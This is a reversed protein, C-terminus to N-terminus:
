DSGNTECDAWELDPSGSEFVFPEQWVTGPEELTATKHYCVDLPTAIPCEM